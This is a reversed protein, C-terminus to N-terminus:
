DDKDYDEWSIVSWTKTERDYVSIVKYDNAVAWSIASDREDPTECVKLEPLKLNSYRTEGNYGVGAGLVM